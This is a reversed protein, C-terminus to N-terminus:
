VRRKRDFLVKNGQCLMLHYGRLREFKRGRGILSARTKEEDALFSMPFLPLDTIHKQGRFHMVKVTTSAYGTREGNWNVHELDICWCPSQDEFTEDYRLVRCVTDVGLFKTVVLTQPPFVQWVDKYPVKGTEMTQAFSSVSHAVIPTLFEVLAAAATRLPGEPAATPFNILDVWRHVLPRFPPRFKWGDLEMDLDQYDQLVRSLVEWMDPDHIVFDHTDWASGVVHLRHLIPLKEAQQQLHSEEKSVTPFESWRPPCPQMSGKCEHRYRVSVVAPDALNTHPVVNEYSPSM